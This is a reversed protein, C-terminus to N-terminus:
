GANHKRSEAETARKVDALAIRALGLKIVTQTAEALSAFRMLTEATPPTDTMQKELREGAARIDQLIQSFSEAVAQLEEDTIPQIRRSM